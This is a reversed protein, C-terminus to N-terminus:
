PTSDCPDRATEKRRAPALPKPHRSKLQRVFRGLSDLAQQSEPILSAFMQWCHIM